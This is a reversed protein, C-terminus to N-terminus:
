NINSSERGQFYFTYPGKRSLLFYPNGWRFLSFNDFNRKMTKSLYSIWIWAKPSIKISCRDNKLGWRRLFIKLFIYIYIYIYIYETEVFCSCFLVFCMTGLVYMERFHEIKQTGYQCLDYKGPHNWWKEQIRQLMKTLILLDVPGYKSWIKSTGLIM